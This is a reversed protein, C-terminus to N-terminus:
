GSVVNGRCTEVVAYTWVTKSAVLPAAAADFTRFHESALHVDFAAADDYLEYLFVADADKGGSCIDFRRCAPELELSKRAQERMLPMFQAMSGRKVAFLVCVAFM